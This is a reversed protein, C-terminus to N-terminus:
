FLIGVFIGYGWDSAHQKKTWWDRGYTWQSFVVSVVWTLIWKLKSVRRRMFIQWIESQQRHSSQRLSKPRKRKSKLKQQVTKAVKNKSYFHSSSKLCSTWIGAWYRSCMLIQLCLIRLHVTPSTKLCCSFMWLM